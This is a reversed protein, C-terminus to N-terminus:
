RVPEGLRAAALAKNAHEAFVGRPDRAYAELTSRGLGKSDGCALLSRAATLERICRDTEPGLGYGGTPELEELRRRAWGGVGPRRLLNALAPAFRASGHAEAALCARRFDGMSSDASLRDVEKLIPEVACDAKTRGLAVALGINALSGCYRVGSRDIQCRRRGSVMDALTEAGAPDGLVGLVLAYAQREGLSGAAALHRRLVPIARWPQALALGSGRLGDGISAMAASFAADDVEGDKTWSLVEARLIGKEVLERQLAKVDIRRFDCGAELARAAALGLSYGENQVDARMRTMPVVDRAVGKGVGVVAISRLGRPLYSRLPINSAFAHDRPDKKPEAVYGYEDKFFGHSDQNSLAQVVTDHFARACNVDWGELRYDPVIRRRERSDVVQAVDWSDPQGARSRVGFAWLDWACPDNVLNFDSNAGGKGLRHPAQGASQLAFDGAGIFETGCGAAAAVDSDGTADVVVRARVAFRGQGTAVVVGVVRDGEVLAGEGFAGYLVHVGAERCLGTFANDNRLNGYPSPTARARADFEKTFGCINGCYYGTIMGESSVGGLVHLYEVLLTRAGARAAATAAPAGATGGGVVVVDWEGMSPLERAAEPITRRAIFRDYPRLGGLPEMVKVAGPDAPAPPTEVRAGAVRPRLRAEAAAAAGM